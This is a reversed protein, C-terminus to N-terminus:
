NLDNFDRCFSISKTKVNAMYICFETTHEVNSNDDYKLAGFYYLFLRGSVIDPYKAIASEVDGPEAQMTSVWNNGLGAMFFYRGQPAISQTPQFTLAQIDASSPGNVFSPTTLVKMAIKVNRAPTKGSNSFILEVNWPRTATFSKPNSVADLLGVWAREDLKTAAETDRRATKMESLQGNISRWQLIGVVVLGATAIVLAITAIGLYRTNRAVPDREGLWYWPKPAHEQEQRKREAQRARYAEEPSQPM